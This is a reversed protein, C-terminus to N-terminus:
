HPLLSVKQTPLSKPYPQLTWRRNRLRYCMIMVELFTFSPCVEINPSITSLVKAARHAQAKRATLARAKSEKQAVKTRYTTLEALTGTPMAKIGTLAIYRSLSPSQRNSSNVPLPGQFSQVLGASASSPTIELNTPPHDPHNEQSSTILSRNELPHTHEDQVNPISPLVLVGLTM